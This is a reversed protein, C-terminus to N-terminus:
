QKEGRTTSEEFEYDKRKRAKAEKRSERIRQEDYDEHNRKWTKGM